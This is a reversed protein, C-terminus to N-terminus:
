KRRRRYRKKERDTLPRAHIVFVSDEEDIVFVVQLFRGEATQGWVLFTEDASALPYPSRARRVVEEAEQPDVGHESSTARENWQNWRFEM